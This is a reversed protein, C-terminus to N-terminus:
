GVVGGEVLSDFVRVQAWGDKNEAIFALHMPADQYRDHAARDAFVVHLAVDFARDNVPRALEPELGGVAFWVVGPHDRLQRKCADVLRAVAAPSRDKLTFFVDHCLM